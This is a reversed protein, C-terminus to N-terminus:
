LTLANALEVGVFCVFVKSRRIEKQEADTNSNTQHNQEVRGHKGPPNSGKNPPEPLNVRNM